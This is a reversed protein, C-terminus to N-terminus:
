NSANLDTPKMTPSKLAEIAASPSESSPKRKSRRILMSIGPQTVVSEADAELADHMVVLPPINRDSEIAASTSSTQDASKSRTHTLKSMLSSLRGKPKKEEETDVRETEEFSSSIVPYKSGSQSRAHKTSNRPRKSALVENGKVSDIQNSGDRDGTLSSRQSGVRKLENLKKQSTASKNITGSASSESDGVHYPNNRFSASADFSSSHNRRSGNRVYKTVKETGTKDLNSQNKNEATDSSDQKSASAYLTSSSRHLVIKKKTNM